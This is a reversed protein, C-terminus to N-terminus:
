TVSKMAANLYLIGWNRLFIAGSHTYINHESYTNVRAMGNGLKEIAFERAKQPHIGNFLRGRSGDLPMYQQDSRLFNPNYILSGAFNREIGLVYAFGNASTQVLGEYSSVTSLRPRRSYIDWSVTPRGLDVFMQCHERTETDMENRALSACLDDYWEDAAQPFVEDALNPDLRTNTDLLRPHILLKYSTKGCLPLEDKTLQIDM